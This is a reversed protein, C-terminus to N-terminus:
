ISFFDGICLLFLIETGKPLFKRLIPYYFCCRGVVLNPLKRPALHSLFHKGRSTFCSSLLSLILLDEPHSFNIKVRFFLYAPNEKILNLVKSLNMNVSTKAVLHVYESMINITIIKINHKFCANRICGEILNKYKSKM